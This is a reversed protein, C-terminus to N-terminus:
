AYLTLEGSAIKQGECSIVASIMLMLDLRKLQRIEILIQKELPPPSNIQFNTVAILMGNPPPESKSSAKARHGLAAAITQAACEVLAAELVAGDCVAFDGARFSAVASATTETCDILAEIFRMPPRHPILADIADPM